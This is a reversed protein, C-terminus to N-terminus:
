EEVPYTGRFCSFVHRSFHGCLAVKRKRMSGARPETRVSMWCVDVAFTGEKFLSNIGGDYEFKSLALQLGVINTLDIDDPGRGRGLACRVVYTHVVVGGQARCM